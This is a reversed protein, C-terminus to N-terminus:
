LRGVMPAGLDAIGLQATAVDSWVYRRDARRLVILAAQDIKVVVSERRVDGIADFLAAAPVAANAYALSIHPWLVDTDAGPVRDPGRVTAIAAQLATRVRSVPEVPAATLTIGEWHVEAPRFTLDFTPTGALQERAADVLDHVEPATIEDVAGVGQVTLHLWEIPVVDIGEIGAVARQYKRAMAHLAPQDDFLLHWTLYDPAEPRWHNRLADDRTVAM